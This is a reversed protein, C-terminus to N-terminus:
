VRKKNKGYKKRAGGKLKIMVIVLIIVLILVISGIIIGILLIPSSKGICEHNDAVFNEGCELKVCVNSECTEDYQCQGSTGCECNQEETFSRCEYNTTSDCEYNTRFMKGESCQAWATPSSCTPCQPEKCQSNECGDQCTEIIRIDTTCDSFQYQQVIDFGSCLKSGIFGEQCFRVCRDGECTEDSECREYEEQQDGCSDFWYVSNGSCTKTAHDTCQQQQCSGSSCSYDCRSTYEWVGSNSCQWVEDGECKRDGPDAGGSCETTPVSCYAQQNYDPYPKLWDSCYASASTWPNMYSMQDPHWARMSAVEGPQCPNCDGFIDYMFCYQECIGWYSGGTVSLSKQGENADIVKQKWEEFSSIDDPINTIKMSASVLSFMFIGMVLFILIKKM